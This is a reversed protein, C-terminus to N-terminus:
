DTEDLEYDGGPEVDHQPIGALHRRRYDMM